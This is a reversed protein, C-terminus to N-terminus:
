VLRFHKMFVAVQAAKIDDFKMRKTPDSLLSEVKDGWAKTQKILTDLMCVHMREVLNSVQTETMENEFDKVADMITYVENDSRLDAIFTKGVGKAAVERWRSFCAGTYNVNGGSPSGLQSAIKEM